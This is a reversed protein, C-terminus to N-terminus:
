RALPVQVATGLVLRSQGALPQGNDVPSESSCARAKRGYAGAQSMARPRSFGQMRAHASCLYCVRTTCACGGAVTGQALPRVARRGPRRLGAHRVRVRCADRDRVRRRVATGGAPQARGAPHTPAGREAGGAAGSGGPGTLAVNRPDTNRLCAAKRRFCAECLELLVETRGM